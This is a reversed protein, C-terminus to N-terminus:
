TWKKPVQFNLTLPEDIVRHNRRGVPFARDKQLFFPSVTEGIKWFPIVTFGSIFVCTDVFYGLDYLFVDMDDM